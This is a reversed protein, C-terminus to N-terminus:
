LRSFRLTQGLAVVILILMLNLRALTKVRSWIMPPKLPMPRGTTGSWEAVMHRLYRREIVIGNGVIVMYLVLKSLLIWGYLDPLFILGPEGWLVLKLVGSGFLLLVGAGFGNAILPFMTALFREGEPNQQREVLASFLAFWIHGGAFLLMGILHLLTSFYEWFQSM